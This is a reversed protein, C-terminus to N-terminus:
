IRLIAEPSSAWASRSADIRAIVALVFQSAFFRSTATRVIRATKLAWCYM